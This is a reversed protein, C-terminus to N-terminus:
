LAHMIHPSVAASSGRPGPSGRNIQMGYNNSYVGGDLLRRGRIFAASVLLFIILRRGRIFAASKEEIRRKNSANMILCNLYGTKLFYSLMLDLAIKSIM